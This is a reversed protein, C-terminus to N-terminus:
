KHKLSIRETVSVPGRLFNVFTKENVDVDEFDVWYRLTFTLM